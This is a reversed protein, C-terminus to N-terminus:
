NEKKKMNMSGRTDKKGKNKMTNKKEKGRRNIGAERGRGGKEAGPLVIDVSGRAGCGLYPLMWFALAM